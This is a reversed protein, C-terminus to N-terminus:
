LADNGIEITVLKEFVVQKTQYDATKWNLM